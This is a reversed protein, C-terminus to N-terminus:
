RAAKAQRRRWLVSALGILMLWLAAPEPVAPMQPAPDIWNSRAYEDGLAAWSSGGNTVVQLYRGSAVVPFDLAFAQYKVTYDSRSAVPALSVWGNGIPTDSLFIKQTTTNAPLVDVSFRVQSLTFTAGMDAQVWHFGHSGANWYGGNFVSQASGGAVAYATYAGAPLDAAFPSIVSAALTPQAMAMLLTTLILPLPCVM